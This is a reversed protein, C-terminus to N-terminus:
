TKMQPEYGLWVKGCQGCALLRQNQRRYFNLVNLRQKFCVFTPANFKQLPEDPLCPASDVKVYAIEIAIAAIGAFLPQGLYLPVFEVETQVMLCGSMVKAANSFIELESGQTDAQTSPVHSRDRLMAAFTPNCQPCGGDNRCAM